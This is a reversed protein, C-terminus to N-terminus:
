RAVYATHGEAMELAGYGPLAEVREFGQRELTTRVEDPGYLRLEHVEEARRMTEGHRRVVVIRRTLTGGEEVADMQVAWGPGETRSRHTGRGPGALDLLFLGGPRLAARVRRAAEGLDAREDFRYNLVEGIALVADCPPLDVDVFSGATFSAHPAHRKALALLAPSQDIGLVSHGAVTLLAATIGSGCGLEVVTSRPPLLKMATGAAAEAISGFGADHVVALDEAYHAM